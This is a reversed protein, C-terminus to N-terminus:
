DLVLFMRLLTTTSNTCVVISYTYSETATATGNFTVTNGQVIPDSSETVPANWTVTGAKGDHIYDYSVNGVSELDFVYNYDSINELTVYYVGSTVNSMFGVVDSSDKRM